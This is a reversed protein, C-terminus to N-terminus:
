RSDPESNRGPRPSLSRLARLQQEVRPALAPELEAARAYHWAAEDNRGAVVLAGALNFHVQFADPAERLALQYHRLADESRGLDKYVNALNNHAKPSSPRVQLAAELHRIAELPKGQELLVNGLNNHATFNGETVTLAHEFLTTDSRWHQVQKWATLALVCPLVLCVTTFARDSVRWKEPVRGKLLESKLLDAIGWSVVIFLGILPVYTYRDAFAQGGIQVLGIVPVLSGLYWLWGVAPYRLGRLPFVALLTVGALGALAAALAGSSHPSSPFPYFVCLGTPYLTKWVYTAYALVANDLRRWLSLAELDAVSGGRDQAVFAIAAAALSLAFFPLKERVLSWLSAAPPSQRGRRARGNGEKGAYPEQSGTSLRRLPWYDLLLLLFPLTVLMQKAMLGLAAFLLSLAQDRGRSSGLWAAYFWIALLGFLTSLLDKRTAVWAVSEVHLPHIAFLAAVLASRRLAGTMRRLLAFLLLTNTLHLGLNTGHHGAPRLGFLEVDLMHSLWTLPTWNSRHLSTFAWRTSEPGLGSRVALNETVYVGDDYHLFGHGLVQGFVAVTLLSLLVCVCVTGRV